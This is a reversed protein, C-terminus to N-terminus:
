KTKYYMLGLGTPRATDGHGTRAIPPRTGHKLFKEMKNQRPYPSFLTGTMQGERSFICV